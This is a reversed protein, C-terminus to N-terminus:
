CHGEFMGDAETAIIDGMSVFSSAIDCESLFLTSSVMDLFHFALGSLCRKYLDFWNKCCALLARM